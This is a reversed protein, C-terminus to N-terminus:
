SHKSIKNMFNAPVSTIKKKEYNFCLMGTKGLAAVNNGNSNGKELKYYLDFGIKSIGGLFLSGTLKDGYFLENKFEIAADIMILGIGDIELENQYGLVFLWKMRIEQMISLITDNGVHSGYNLDTIRIPIETTFVAQAPLDIKIRSM